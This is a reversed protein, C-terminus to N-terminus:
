GLHYGLAVVPSPCVFHFPFRTCFSRVWFQFSVLAPGLRTPGAGAALLILRKDLDEYNALRPQVTVGPEKMQSTENKIAASVHAFHLWFHM